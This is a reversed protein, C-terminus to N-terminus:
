EGSWHGFLYFRAPPLLGPTHPYLEAVRHFTALAEGLNGQARLLVGEQYIVRESGPEIAVAAAVLASARQLLNEDGRTPYDPIVFCNMTEDALHCMARVSQPDLRLAQEYM